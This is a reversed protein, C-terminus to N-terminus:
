GGVTGRKKEGNKKKRKLCPEVTYVLSTESEQGEQRQRGLGLKVSATKQM